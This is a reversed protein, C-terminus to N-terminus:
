KSILDFKNQEAKTKGAWFIVLIIVGIIPILFLLQWWGSRNTDHLRRTGIAITPIMAALSYVLGLIGASIVTLLISVIFGILQYYWFGSRSVRGSFTAYNRFANVYHTLMGAAEHKVDAFAEESKIVFIVIANNENIEFDVTLGQEPNVNSTQFDSSLFNYRNGDEASIIGTSSQIEFNLISGKM